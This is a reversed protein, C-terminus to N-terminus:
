KSKNSHYVCHIAFEKIQDERLILSAILIKFNTFEKEFAYLFSLNKFLKNKKLWNKAQRFFQSILGVKPQELM